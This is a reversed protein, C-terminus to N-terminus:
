RKRGLFKVDFRLAGSSITGAMTAPDLKIRYHEWRSSHATGESIYLVRGRLSWGGRYTAGYWLCRYDGDPAFTMECLTNGWLVRWTGVLSLAHRRPFPGPVPRATTAVLLLCAVLSLLRKVFDGKGSRGGFAAAPNSGATERDRLDGCGVSLSM